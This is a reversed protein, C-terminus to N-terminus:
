SQNQLLDKLFQNTSAVALAFLGAPCDVDTVTSLRKMTFYIVEDLAPSVGPVALTTKTFEVNHNDYVLGDKTPKLQGHRIKLTYRVLTETLSYESAYGDFKVKNLVKANGNVTITIPSSITM